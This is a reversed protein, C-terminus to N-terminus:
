QLVVRYFRSLALPTATDVVQQTAGGLTVTTLTTWTVPPTLSTAYQVAYTNGPIGNITIVPYLNFSNANVSVIASTTFHDTHATNTAVCVYNGVNAGSVSAITLTATQSGTIGNGDTLPVNNLMWRYNVPVNLVEAHLSAPTGLGVIVSSPQTSFIPTFPDVPAVANITTKNLGPNYNWIVKGAGGYAILQQSNTLAAFFGTVNGNITVDSANDAINLIGVCGNQGLTPAAWQNLFLHGGNTLTLYNTTNPAGNWGLGLQGGIHLEGGNITVTGVSDSSGNNGVWLHDGYSLSCGPGITLTSPGGPFAVGGWQNGGGFMAVGATVQAGNTLVVDAGAGGGMGIMLQYLNVSNSIVCTVHSGVGQNLMVRIYAGSDNTYSPAVASSWNGSDDFYAYPGYGDDFVNFPSWSYDTEAATANFALNTAALLGGVVLTKIVRLSSTKKM